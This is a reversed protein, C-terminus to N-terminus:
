VLSNLQDMVKNEVRKNAGGIARGLTSSFSKITLGGVTKSLVLYGDVLTPESKNSPRYYYHTYEFSSKFQLVKTKFARMHDTDKHKLKKSAASLEEPSVEIMDVIMIKKSNYKLDKLINDYDCLIDLTEETLKIKVWPEGYGKTAGDYSWMDSPAEPNGERYLKIRKEHFGLHGSIERSLSSIRSNRQEEEIDLYMADPDILLTSAAQAELLREFSEQIYNVLFRNKLDRSYSKEYERQIGSAELDCIPAIWSYAGRGKVSEVLSDVKKSFEQEKKKFVMKTNNAQLRMLAHNQERSIGLADGIALCYDTADSQLEKIPISFKDKLVGPSSFVENYKSYKLLGVMETLIAEMEDYSDYNISKM